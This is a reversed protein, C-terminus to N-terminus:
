WGVREVDPALLSVGGLAEASDPSMSSESIIVSSLTATLLREELDALM